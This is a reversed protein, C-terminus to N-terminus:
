FVFYHILQRRGAEDFCFVDLEVEVAAESIMIGNPESPACLSVVLNEETWGVKFWVFIMKIKSSREASPLSSNERVQLNGAGEGYSGRGARTLRNDWM